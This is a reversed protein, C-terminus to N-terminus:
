WWGIKRKPQQQERRAKALQREFARLKEFTEREATLIRACWLLAANWGAVYAHWEGDTYARPDDCRPPTAMLDHVGQQM